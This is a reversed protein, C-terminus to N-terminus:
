RKMSRYIQGTFGPELWYMEPWISIGGRPMFEGVILFELPELLATLDNFMIQITSEHFAGHARFSGLYLKLSKSEVMKLAPVYWIKIHAYDPQGTKPCLSTFEPCDLYITPRVGEPFADEFAELVEPTYEHAYSTNGSGLSKLHDAQNM